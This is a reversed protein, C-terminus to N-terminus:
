ATEKQPALSLLGCGYAKGKGIGETLRTRLRDPDTILATGEFLTRAHKVQQQGDRRAGHAADLPTAHLTTLTLGSTEAQRTWWEDAARGSLPIIAGLQYMERTTRGPKRIANAAIRYRVPLGPRLADLLPALPRTLAQGYGAPLKGIDPQRASQLLIQPGSPGPEARFLVGLERRPETSPVDDPFLSMLRHHLGVASAADRRADRHRQDPVIRTLWLSM